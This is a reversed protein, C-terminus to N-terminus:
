CNSSQSQPPRVGSTSHRQIQADPDEEKWIQLQDTVGSGSNPAHRTGTQLFVHMGMIRSLVVVVVVERGREEGRGGISRRKRGEKGKREEWHM